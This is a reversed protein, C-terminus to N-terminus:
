AIKVLLIGIFILFIGIGKYLTFKEKLIVFGMIAGIVVSVERVAVIYGVNETQFAFLIALYAAITAPGILAIEKKVDKADKFQHRFLTLVWPTLFLQSYFFLLFIYIVPNGETVGLKDNITYGCITLGVGLAMLISNKFLRQFCQELKQKKSPSTEQKPQDDSSSVEPATPKPPGMEEEDSSLKKYRLTWLKSVKEVIKEWGIGLFLIGLVVSFVGCWGLVNLHQDLFFFSVISTLGVGTGRAIPYVVSIEGYKYGLSM